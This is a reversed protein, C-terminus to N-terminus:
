HLADSNFAYIKCVAELDVLKNISSIKKMSSVNQYKTFVQLFCYIDNLEVM